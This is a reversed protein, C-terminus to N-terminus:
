EVILIQVFRSLVVILVVIVHFIGKPFNFLCTLEQSGGCTGQVLQCHVTLYGVVLKPVFKEEFLFLQNL